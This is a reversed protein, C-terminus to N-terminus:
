FNLSKFLTRFQLDPNVSHVGRSCAGGGTRSGRRMGQAGPSPAADEGRGAGISAARTAGAPRSGRGGRASDDKVDSPDDAQM